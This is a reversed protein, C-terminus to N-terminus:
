RPFDSWTNRSIRRYDQAKTVSRHARAGHRAGTFPCNGGRADRRVRQDSIRSSRGSATSPSPFLMTFTTSGTSSSGSECPRQNQHLLRLDDIDSGRLSHEAAERRYTVFTSRVVKRIHTLGRELLNLTAERAHRDDGHRRLTDVANFLGGLPNNVEHAMGSALKGVSATDIEIALRASGAKVNM